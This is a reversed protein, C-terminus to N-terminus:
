KKRRYLVHVIMQKASTLKTDSWCNTLWIQVPPNASTVEYWHTSHSLHFKGESIDFKELPVPGYNTESLGRHYLDQVLSTEVQVWTNPIAEEILISKISIEWIGGSSVKPPCQVSLGRMEGRANLVQIRASMKVIKEVRM